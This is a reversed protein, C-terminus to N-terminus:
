LLQGLVVNNVNFSKRKVKGGNANTMSKLYLIITKIIFKSLASNRWFLAHNIRTEQVFERCSKGFKRWWKCIKMVFLTFKIWSRFKSAVISTRWANKIFLSSDVKVQFLWLFLDESHFDAALISLKLNSQLECTFYRNSSVIMMRKYGVCLFWGRKCVCLVHFAIDSVHLSVFIKGRMKWRSFLKRM